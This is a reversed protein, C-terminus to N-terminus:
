WKLITVGLYQANVGKAYKDVTYVLGVHQTVLYAISVRLLPFHGHKVFTADKQVSYDQASDNGTATGRLSAVGRGKVVGLEVSITFPRLEYKRGLTASLGHIVARMDLTGEASYVGESGKASLSANARLNALGGVGVYYNNYFPCNFAILSSNSTDDLAVSASATIGNTERAVTTTPIKRNLDSAQFKGYGFLTTCASFALTPLLLYGLVLLRVFLTM